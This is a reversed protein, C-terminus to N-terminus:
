LFCMYGEPATAVVHLQVASDSLSCESYVSPWALGWIKLLLSWFYNKLVATSSGSDCGALILLLIRYNHVINLTNLWHSILAWNEEWIVTVEIEHSKNISGLYTVNRMTCTDRGGMVSDRQTNHKRTKGMLWTFLSNHRMWHETCHRSCQCQNLTLFLLLFQTNSEYVLCEKLAPINPKFDVTVLETHLFM